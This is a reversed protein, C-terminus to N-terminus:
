GCQRKSERFDGRRIADAVRESCEICLDLTNPSHEGDLSWWWSLCGAAAGQGGWEFCEDKPFEAERGCSDCIMRVCERSKVVKEQDEFKKSM